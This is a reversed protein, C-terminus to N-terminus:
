LNSTSHTVTTGDPRECLITTIDYAHRAKFKLQADLQAARSSPAYVEISKGKYFCKYGYLEPTM